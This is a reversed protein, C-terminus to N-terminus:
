RYVDSLSFSTWFIHVPVTSCLVMLDHRYVPKNTVTGIKGGCHFSFVHLFFLISLSLCVVKPRHVQFASGYKYVNISGLFRNRPISEALRHLWRAPVVLLTPTCARWPQSDIGPSRLLNIFVAESNFILFPSLSDVPLPTSYAWCWAYERPPPLAHSRPHSSAPLRPKKGRM